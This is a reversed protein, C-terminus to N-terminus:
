ALQRPHERDEADSIAWGLREVFQLASHNSALHVSHVAEDLLVDSGHRPQESRDTIVIVRPM